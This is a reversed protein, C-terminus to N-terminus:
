NALRKSVAATLGDKQDFAADLTEGVRRAAEEDMGPFLHAYTDMTFAVKSHGLRESIMKFDVGARLMQSAHSHRLAHFNPGTLKRRLLLARYASTFASPHWLSGDEVCCVWDGALYEDALLERRKDQEVRHIELADIAMRPLTVSRVRESKTDKILIGDAKTEILARRVWLRRFGPEYDTWKL